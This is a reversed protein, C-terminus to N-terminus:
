YKICFVPFHPSAPPAPPQTMSLGQCGRLFSPGAQRSRLSNEKNVGGSYMINGAASSPQKRQVERHRGKETTRDPSVALNGSFVQRNGKKRIGPDLHM